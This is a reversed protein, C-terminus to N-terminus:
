DDMVFELHEYAARQMEQTIRLKEILRAEEEEMQQIMRESMLRKEHEHALNERAKKVLDKKYARQIQDRRKLAIQEQTRIERSRESLIKQNADRKNQITSLNKLRELRTVQVIHARYASVANMSQNRRERSTQVMANNNNNAIRIEQQMQEYMRLKARQHDSNRKKVQEIEKARRNAEEIRKQARADENRLHAIRNALLQVDVEARKRENKADLMASQLQTLSEDAPGAHRPSMTPADMPMPAEIDDANEEFWELFTLKTIEGTANPDMEDLARDLMRPPASFGMDLLLSGLHETGFIGGGVDYKAFLTDFRPTESAVQPDRPEPDDMFETDGDLEKAMAATSAWWIADAMKVVDVMEAADHVRVLDAHGAVAACCTAATGWARDKPEPRGCITGIFNKRSAGVLVPLNSCSTKFSAIRRLLQLNPDKDKAFGIGPDAILNWRLIGAEQAAQVREGLENAVDQVVDSYSQARVDSHGRVKLTTMTSANGRMHMLVMPVRLEAVTRFMAPDFVGASIDNVVNAGAAIAQRAVEAKTTDISIPVSSKSRIGRIVPLVRQLEEDLLVPDAGPQSSEGGIDIIDVGQEEMQLARAVAADVTALDGGDTFSDPTVNVIGMVFTKSGLQWPAAKVVPLMPVPPTFDKDRRKEGDKLQEFLENIATNLVPHRYDPALDCLPALVFDREAIREHPIILPGESTDTTIVMDDYFLVDVDLVRPGNRFTVTRGVTREITKFCELLAVPALTTRLEVVANFFAPQDEVYQPATTYLRSTRVVPGAQENLLSIAAELHALKDGLNTGLAAFVRATKSTM